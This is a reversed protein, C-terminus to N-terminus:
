SRAFLKVAFITIFVKFLHYWKIKKGEEFTRGNYTIPVEYFIKGRKCVKGLIEAHQEWGKTRLQEPEILSKRFMLYCSFVNTWTTNFLINFYTTIFINGIKHWFYFVKTWKPALFRSGIVVDANFKIVPELLMKYDDPDYELDADQFLIYDGTARKLAEKVAGGKGLNEPNKHYIDYLDTNADLFERTGDNSGDDVVVVEISVKDVNQSKVKKLIRAITNIENYVPVIVSLKVTNDM